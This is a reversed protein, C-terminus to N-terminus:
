NRVELIWSSQGLKRLEDVREKAKEKSQYSGSVVRYLTKATDNKPQSPGVSHILKYHAQIVSALLKAIDTQVSVTLFRTTADANRHNFLEILMSKRAKNGRLVGFYPVSGSRPEALWNDNYTRYVTRFSCNWYKSLADGFAMALKPDALKPDTQDFVLVQNKDGAWDSHLSLFLDAGSGKACRDSLTPNSRISDRTYIVKHGLKVLIEGLIKSFNFMQTGESYYPNNRSNAGETHGADLVIIM